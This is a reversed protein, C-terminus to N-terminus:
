PLDAFWTARHTFARVHEADLPVGALAAAVVAVIVVGAIALTKSVLPTVFWYALDTLMGRRWRKKAVAPWFTEILGFGVALIVLGIALGVMRSQRDGAM